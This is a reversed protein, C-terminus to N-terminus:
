ERPVVRCCHALSARTSLPLKRTKNSYEFAVRTIKYVKVHCTGYNFESQGDGATSQLIQLIVIHVYIYTHLEIGSVSM